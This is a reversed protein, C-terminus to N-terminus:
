AQDAFARDLMNKKFINIYNKQREPIDDGRGKNRRIVDNYNREIDTMSARKANEEMQSNRIVKITKPKPAETHGLADAKQDLMQAVEEVSGTMSGIPAHKSVAQLVDKKRQSEQRYDEPSLDWGRKIVKEAMFLFNGDEDFIYLLDPLEPTYRATVKKGIYSIFEKNYYHEGKFNVGNRGVTRTGKVRMLCFYLSDEPMLRKTFPLELYLENPRKNDMGYGTHPQENYIQYVYKDHFRIFEELTPADMIYLDELNEPRQKADKGAYSPYKKSLQDEFTRFLREIPKSQGHYPLTYTVELQLNCALSSEAKGFLDHARYDKGNDMYVSEPIGFKKCGISFTYLVIDANPNEIRVYSALVKRTRMDMWYTGWPRFLKWGSKEQRSPIRVLVDWLHHDSVWIGNPALLTYDRETYPLCMDNFAKEGERYRILVAKDANRVLNQFAKIGPVYDGNNDAKRRVESYCSEISPKQQRLYLSFFLEEYKKPVTSQGRNYGGRHDVLMEVRGTKTKKLWRYLTRRTIQSDKNEDNHKKVFAEMIDTKKTMGAKKAQRLFKRYEAVISARLIGKERQEKTCPDRDNFIMHSEGNKNSYAEQAPKPLSELLIEMRKGGQGASSPVYQKQYEGRQAKKRVTSKEYGLLEATENVSLWVM